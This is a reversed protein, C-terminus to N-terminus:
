ESKLPLKITVMTGRDPESEIELTGKHEDIINRTISLGLGTGKGPEKTTFFPDTIKSLNEPPIGCGSDTIIILLFNNQVKTEISIKGSDSIAHVSNTLINLIAQHMTGENGELIFQKITLKNDIEIRNKIQNRLMLLCNDIVSSIKFETIQNDNKRSYHNLGRVIDAARTVGVNIIELLPVIQKLHSKLNDKVYNEIAIVGGKIFNLPNNIEHAVGAALLGLSAMKESSVLQKQAQKLKNLTLQLEERQFHLEDNIATLEENATALEERQSQLVRNKVKSRSFSRLAQIAVFLLLIVIAISGYNVIKRQRITLDKLENDLRLREIERGMENLEHITQFNALNEKFKNSNISDSLQKFQIHNKLASKLDKRLTDIRFSLNFYTMRQNLRPYHQIFDKVKQSYTLANGIDGLQIYSETISNYLSATIRSNIEEIDYDREILSFIELAKNPRNTFRYVDGINYLSHIENPKDNIAKSLKFTENFIILASDLKNTNGYVSGKGIIADIMLSTDNLTVGCSYVDDYYALALSFESSFYYIDGIEKLIQAKRRKDDIEGVMTLAKSLNDLAETNAGLYNYSKGLSLHAEATLRQSSLRKAEDVAHRAFKAAQRIDSNRLTEALLLKIKVQDESLATTDVLKLLSDVNTGFHTKPFLLAILISLIFIKRFM